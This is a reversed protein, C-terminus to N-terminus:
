PVVAKSQTVQEREIIQALTSSRLSCQVHEIASDMKAHLPCLGESHEPLNLPCRVIRRIPDVADVVDLISIESAARALTFGGNPGRQGNILGALVLDRLIKSLFPKPIQTRASITESNVAEKNAALFTMARLAYESTTSFM